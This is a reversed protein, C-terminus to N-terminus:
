SGWCAGLTAASGRRRDVGPGQSHWHVEGGNLARNPGQACCQIGGVCVCVCLARLGGMAANFGRGALWPPGGTPATSGGCVGSARSTYGGQLGWCAWLMASSGGWLDRCLVPCALPCGATLELPGMPAATSRQQHAVAPGQGRLLGRGAVGPMGEYRAAYGRHGRGTIGGLDTVWNQVEGAGLGTGVGLGWHKEGSHSGVGAEWMEEVPRSGLAQGRVQDGSMTGLAPDCIM